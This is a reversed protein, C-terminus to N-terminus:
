SKMAQLRARLPYDEDSAELLDLLQTEIQDADEERGIERYFGALRMQCKIWFVGSGMYAARRRHGAVRELTAVARRLDGKKSFAVALLDAGAFFLGRHDPRLKESSANFEGIATELDGTTMANLGRGLGLYHDEVGQRELNALLKESEERLGAMSFLLPTMPDRYGAGEKLHRALAEPDDQAFVLVALAEHRAAPDPLRRFWSEAEATRGLALSIFGLEKAVSVQVDTSFEEFREAIENQQAVVGVSDGALWKEYVGFLEIRARELPTVLDSDKAVLDRAREIYPESRQPVDAWLALSWAAEFNAQANQPAAEAMRIPYRLCDSDRETATAWCLTGATRNGWYHEPSLTLLADFTSLAEDPRSEFFDLSAQLFLQEEASVDRANRTASALAERIEEPEHGQEYHSWALQLHASVFEPDENLSRRLLREAAISRNSRRLQDAESYLRLAENSATTVRPPTQADTDSEPKWSRRSAVVRSARAAVDRVAPMLDDISDFPQTLHTVSVGRAPDILNLDVVYQRGVREVKPVILADIEGVRWSVGRATNADLPTGRPVRMLDLTADIQDRSMLEFVPSHDLERKLLSTVVDSSIEDSEIPAIESLLVRALPKPVEVLERARQPLVFFAGALMAALASVAAWGAFRSRSNSPAGVSSSRNRSPIRTRRDVSLSTPAKRREVAPWVPASSEVAGTQAAVSQTAASQTAASPAEANPAAAPVPADVAVPTEAAM